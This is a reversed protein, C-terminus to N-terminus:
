NETPKEVSRNRADQGAGEGAAAKTWATAPGRFEHESPKLGTRDVIPRDVFRSVIAIVLEMTGRTPAGAYLQRDLPKAGAPVETLKPGSKAVVLEYVPLERRERHLRLRFRDALLTQLM